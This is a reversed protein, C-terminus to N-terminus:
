EVVALELMSAHMQCVVTRCSFVWEDMDIYEGHICNM